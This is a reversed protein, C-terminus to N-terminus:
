VDDPRIAEPSNVPPTQQEKPQQLGTRRDESGLFPAFVGAAMVITSPIFLKLDGGSLVAGTFGSSIMIVSGRAGQRRIFSLGKAIHSKNNVDVVSQQIERTVPTLIEGM